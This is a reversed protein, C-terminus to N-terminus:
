KSFAFYQDPNGDIVMEEQVCKECPFSNEIKKEEGMFSERPVLVLKEDECGDCVYPVFVSTVQAHGVFSPVMNMQRVILPPCEDYWVERHSIEKMFNVWNRVGCSNIALVEKFNFVYPGEIKNLGGFQSDEDIIGKLLIVVKGGRVEQTFSFKENPLM